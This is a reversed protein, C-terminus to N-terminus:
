SLSGAERPFTVDPAASGLSPFFRQILAAPIDLLQLALLVCGIRRLKRANSANFPDGAAASAVIQALAALLSETVSAMAAGLLMLLPLGTM